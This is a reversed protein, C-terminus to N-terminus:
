GFMFVFLIVKLVFGLIVVLKVFCIFFIELIGIYMFNDGFMVFMIFIVFVILFVFVFLKVIILVNSLICRFKFVVLGIKVFWVFLNDFGVILGIVIWM